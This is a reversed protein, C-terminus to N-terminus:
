LSSASRPASMRLICTSCLHSTRRSNLYLFKVRYPLSHGIDALDTHARTLAQILGISDTHSPSFFLGPELTDVYGNHYDTDIGTM